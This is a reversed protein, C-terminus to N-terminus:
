RRHNSNKEDYIFDISFRIKRINPDNTDSSDVYRGNLNVLCFAIADTLLLPEITQFDGSHLTIRFNASLVEGSKNRNIAYIKCLEPEDSIADEIFDHIKSLNEYEERPLKDLAIRVLEKVENTTM